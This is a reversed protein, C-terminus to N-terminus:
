SLSISVISTISSWTWRNREAGGRYAGALITWIRLLMEARLEKGAERAQTALKPSTLEPLVAIKYPGDPICDSCLDDAPIDPVLFTGLAHLQM